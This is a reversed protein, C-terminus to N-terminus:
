MEQVPSDTKGFRMMEWEKVEKPVVRRRLMREAILVCDGHADPYESQMLWESVYRISHMSEREHLHEETDNNNKKEAREEHLQMRAYFNEEWERYDNKPAKTDNRSGYRAADEAVVSLGRIREFEGFRDVYDLVRGEEMYRRMLRTIEVYCCRMTHRPLLKQLKRLTPEPSQRSGYFVFFCKGLMSRYRDYFSSFDAITAPMCVLVIDARDLLSVTTDNGNAELYVFVDDVQDSLTDIRTDIVSHMGYRYAAESLSQNMPLFLLGNGDVQIVSNYLVARGMEHAVHRLFLEGPLYSGSFDRDLTRRISDYRTGLLHYGLNGTHIFNETMAISCPFCRCCTGAIMAALPATEVRYSPSWVAILM